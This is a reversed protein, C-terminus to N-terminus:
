LALYIFLGMAVLAGGILLGIGWATAPIGLWLVDNDLDSFDVGNALLETLDAHTLHGNRRAGIIKGLEARTPRGKRANRNM